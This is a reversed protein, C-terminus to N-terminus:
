DTTLFPLIAALFRDPTDEHITHGIGPLDIVQADPAAARIADVGDAPMMGGARPDARLYLLPLALPPLPAGGPLALVEALRDAFVGPNTHQFTAVRERVEDSGANPYRHRFFAEITEYSQRQLRQSARLLPALASDRGLPTDEVVLRRFRAPARAAARWLVDGGLSHGLAHTTAVGLADLLALLDDAYDNLQYGSPPTLSQGHGRLDPIYLHFHAALAAVVPLWDRGDVGIGHLLVLPPGARPWERLWVPGAPLPVARCIPAAPAPTEKM